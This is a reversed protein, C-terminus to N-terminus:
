VHVSCPRRSTSSRLFWIHCRTTSQDSAPPRSRDLSKGQPTVRSCPLTPLYEYTSRTPLKTQKLCFVAYSSYGHSSNLRTSKRDGELVPTGYPFSGPFGGSLGLVM